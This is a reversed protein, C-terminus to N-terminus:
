ASQVISPVRAHWDTGRQYHHACRLLLAESFPRGILQFSVPLSAGTFGCPVSIAPLGLFNTIKTNRTLSVVMDLYAPGNATTTEAVTPAAKPLVTTHLVDVKAFVSDRFRRLLVGRLKLAQIYDVAPIFFGAQLRHRVEPSYADPQGRMWLHHNAAGEAKMVLPHLDAADQVLSPIKIEVLEAGLSRLATRSEELRVVIDRSLGEDFYGVPIGVRVGDLPRGLGAEYDPAQHLAATPDLPDAGAIVSMIRACDQATRALPGVTDLSPSMPMVGHRSVRSWTPQLGTVGNASAPCRISGGTDSGLSAPTLRAAVSVGSGCSSGCPVHDPNWPNRCPRLHANYGHPGMAFEVMALAGLTIAGAAELRALVTANGSPRYDSRVRSGRGAVCQARDFMDKHALPVGHLPGLRDGRAVAADARDAARLAEERDLTVFCGLRSDLAEIRDLHAEVVARSSVAGRAIADAMDVLTMLCPDDIV